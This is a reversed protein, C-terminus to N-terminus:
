DRVFPLFIGHPSVPLPMLNLLGYFYSGDFSDEM